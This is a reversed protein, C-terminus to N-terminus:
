TDIKIYVTNQNNITDPLIYKEDITRNRETKRDALIDLFLFIRSYLYNIYRIGINFDYVIIMDESVERAIDYKKVHHFNEGLSFKILNEIQQIYSDLSAISSSVYVFNTTNEYYSYEKRAFIYKIIQLEDWLDSYYSNIKGILYNDSRYYEVKNFFERESDYEM